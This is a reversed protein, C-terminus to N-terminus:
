AIGRLRRLHQNSDAVLAIWRQSYFGGRSVRWAVASYDDATGGANFWYNAIDQNGSSLAAFSNVKIFGPFPTEYMNVNFPKNATDRGSFVVGSAPAYVGSGTPVHTFTGGAVFIFAGAVNAELLWSDFTTEAANYYPRMILSWRDELLSVGVGSYGSRAITNFGSADASPTCKLYLRQKHTLGDVTYQFTLRYPATLPTPPM